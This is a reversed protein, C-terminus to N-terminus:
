TNPTLNSGSVAEVVSGNHIANDWEELTLGHQKATEERLQRAYIDFAEKTLLIEGTYKKM